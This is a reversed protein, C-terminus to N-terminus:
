MTLQFRCLNSPADLLQETSLTLLMLRKLLEAKTRVDEAISLAMIGNPVRATSQSVAHMTALYLHGDFAM